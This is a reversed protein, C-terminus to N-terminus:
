NKILGMQRWLDKPLEVIVYEGIKKILYICQGLTFALTKVQYNLDKTRWSVQTFTKSLQTSSFGIIEKQSINGGRLQTM